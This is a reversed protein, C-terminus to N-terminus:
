ILLVGGGLEWNFHDENVNVSEELNVPHGVGKVYYMPSNLKKELVAVSAIAFISFSELSTALAFREILTIKECFGDLFFDRFPPPHGHDVGHGEQIFFGVICMENLKLHRCDKGM